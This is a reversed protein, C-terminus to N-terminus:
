TRVIRALWAHADGLWGQTEFVAPEISEVSWGDTFAARLEAQSVRRPGEHGPQRDSFCMLHLTGGPELAAHLSNVYRELEPGPDFVHFVGSDVVTRFTRGLRGLDLVDGVVFTAELGRERAKARAREIALASIDIGTADLGQGAALLTHEGTGCGSDLLPGEFVGTEALRRFAGQPRGIDWPPGGAAQYAPEWSSSPSPDTM